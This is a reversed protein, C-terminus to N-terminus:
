KNNLRRKNVHFVLLYIALACIILQYGSSKSIKFINFILFFQYLFSVIILSSILTILRLGNVSETEIKEKSLCLTVLGILIFLNKIENYVFNENVKVIVPAISCAILIIIGPIM